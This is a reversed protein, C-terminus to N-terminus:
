RDTVHRARPLAPAWPGDGGGCQREGPEKEATLRLGHLLVLRRGGFLDDIGLLLVGPRARLSTAGEPHAEDDVRDGEIRAEEDVVLALQDDIRQEIRQDAQVIGPTGARCGGLFPVDVLVAGGEAEPQACGREVVPRRHGRLVELAGEVADGVARSFRRREEGVQELVHFPDILGLELSSREVADDDLVLPRKPDLQLPRM